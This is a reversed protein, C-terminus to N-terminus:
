RDRDLRHNKEKGKAGSLDKNANMKEQKIRTQWENMSLRTRKEERECEDHKTPEVVGM